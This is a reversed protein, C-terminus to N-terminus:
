HGQDHPVVVTGARSGTKGANNSASVSVTYRRGDLDTGLRSARLWVTLSYAGGSGMTVPGTPQVKGYEDTVAYSTTELTCESGVATITGSITVPVLKGNAPWLSSPSVALTVVPPSMCFPTNNLLVGLTNSPSNAAVLDPRGDGNLDAIVVSVPGFGGSGYPLGVQFTGDGNGLLVGFALDCCSGAVLDTNGDGNLDAAAVSGYGFVGSGYAVGSNFTGTANQLLVGATSNGLCVVGIFTCANQVVLDPRGDGNVDATVVFGSDDGGPNYTIEPQFTGDGNGLLVAVRGEGPCQISSLCICAVVLDPHGDGNVDAAGVSRPSYEALQYSVASQFTGDGNGLLVGVSNSAENVVALDPKHDSNVDAVALSWAGEGGSDYSVVPQFTGNGNGLLVGISGECGNVCRVAVLLDLKLDGNVDAVAVSEAFLGGVGYAVVPQFTGDGNGLLVGVSNSFENAVIVDPKGDGNVDAVVVSAPREGGSGYTVPLLFAPPDSAVTHQASSVNAVLIPLSAILLFGLRFINEPVRHQVM